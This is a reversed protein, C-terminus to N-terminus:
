AWGENSEPWIRVPLCTPPAIQHDRESCTCTGGGRAIHCAPCSAACRGGGLRVAAWLCAPEHVTCSIRLNTMQTVCYQTYSRVVLVCECQLILRIHVYYYINIRDADDWLPTRKEVVHSAGSGYRLRIVGRHHSIRDAIAARRPTSIARAPPAPRLEAPTDREMTANEQRGNREGWFKRNSLPRAPALRPPQRAPLSASWLGSGGRVRVAVTYAVFAGKRQWM